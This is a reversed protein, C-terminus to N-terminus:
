LHDEFFRPPQCLKKFGNLLNYALLLLYFYAENAHFTTTPPAKLAYNEKIERPRGEM